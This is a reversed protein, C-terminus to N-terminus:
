RHEAAPLNEKKIVLVVIGAGVFRGTVLAV